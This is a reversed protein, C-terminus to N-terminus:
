LHDETDTVRSGRNRGAGREPRAQESEVVESEVEGDIEDLGVPLARPRMAEVVAAFRARIARIVRLDEQRYVERLQAQESAGIVQMRVREQSAYHALASRVKIQLRGTAIAADAKAHLDRAAMVAAYGRRPLVAMAIKVLVPLLEIALLWLRINMHLNAALPSYRSICADTFNNSGPSTKDCSQEPKTVLLDLARMRANLGDQSEPSARAFDAIVEARAGSSVYAQLTLVDYQKDIAAKQADVDAQSQPFRGIQVQYAKEVNKVETPCSSYSGTRVRTTKGTGPDTRNEYIGFTRCRIGRANLKAIAADRDKTAQQIASTADSFSRQLQVKENEAKQLTAREDETRRAIETEVQNGFQARSQVDMVKMQEKVEPEFITMIIFDAFMLSAFIALAVRASIKLAEGLMHGVWAAAIGLKNTKETAFGVTQDSVLWRDFSLVLFFYFVGAVVLVPSSVPLRSWISTAFLLGTAALLAAMVLAVGLGVFYSRDVPYERLVERDAGAISIAADGIKRVYFPLTALLLAVAGLIIMTTTNM